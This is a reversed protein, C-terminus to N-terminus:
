LVAECDPCLSNEEVAEFPASCRECTWETEPCARHVWGARTQAREGRAIPHGCNMCEPSSPWVGIVACACGEGTWFDCLEADCASM